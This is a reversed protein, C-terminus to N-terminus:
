TRLSVPLLSAISPKGCENKSDYVLKPPSIPNELGKATRFTEFAQDPSLSREAVTPFMDDDENGEEEDLPPLPMGRDDVYNIHNYFEPILFTIDKQTHTHSLAVFQM